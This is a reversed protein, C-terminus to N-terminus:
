LSNTATCTKSLDEGKLHPKTYDQQQQTNLPCEQIWHGMINCKHCVYNNPPPNKISSNPSSSHLSHSASLAGNSLLQQQQLQQLQQQMSGAGFGSLQQQLQQQQQAQFQHGM